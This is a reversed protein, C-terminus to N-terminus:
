YRCLSWQIIVFKRRVPKSCRTCLVQPLPHFNCVNELHSLHLQNMMAMEFKLIQSLKAKAKVARIQCFLGEDHAQQYKCFTFGYM